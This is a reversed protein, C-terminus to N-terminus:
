AASPSQPAHIKIAIIRLPRKTEASNNVMTCPAAANKAAEAEEKARQAAEQRARAQELADSTNISLDM